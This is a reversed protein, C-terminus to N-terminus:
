SVPRLADATARVGARTASVFQEPHLHVCSNDEEWIVLSDEGMQFVQRLVGPCVAPQWFFGAPVAIGEQEVFRRGSIPPLPAGWILVLGSDSLAFRLPRLRIESAQLAFQRWSEFNARLVNAPREEASRVLSLGVRELGHGPLASSPLIVQLWQAIPIWQLAPLSQGPIRSEVSRLRGDALREFRGFAPLTQLARSLKEDGANGRLWIDDQSEAVEISPTLRLPALTLADERLLRILWPFNM